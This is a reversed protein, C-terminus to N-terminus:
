KRRGKRTGSPAPDPAAQQKKLAAVEDKFMAVERKLAENQEQEAVLAGLREESEKRLRTIEADREAIQREYEARIGKIEPELRKMAQATQRKRIIAGLAILDKSM